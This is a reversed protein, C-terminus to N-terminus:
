HLSPTCCSILSAPTSSSSTRRFHTRPPAPFLLIRKGLIGCWPAVFKRSCRWRHRWGWLLARLLLLLFFRACSQNWPLPTPPLGKVLLGARALSDSSSRDLQKSSDKATANSCKQLDKRKCNPDRPFDGQQHLRLPERRDVHWSVSQTAGRRGARSLSSAMLCDDVPSRYSQPHAQTDNHRIIAVQGPFFPFFSIIIAYTSRATYMRGCPSAGRPVIYLRVGGPAARVDVDWWWSPSFSSSFFVQSVLWADWNNERTYICSASGRRERM